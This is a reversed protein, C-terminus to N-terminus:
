EEGNQVGILAPKKKKFILMASLFGIDLFVVSCVVGVIIALNGGFITSGSFNDDEWAQLLHSGTLHAQCTECVLRGVHKCPDHFKRKM